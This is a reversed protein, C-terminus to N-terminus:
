ARVAAVNLAEGIAATRDAEATGQLPVTAQYISVDARAAPIFAVTAAMALLTQRWPWFVKGRAPKRAPGGSAVTNRHDIMNHLFDAGDALTYFVVAELWIRPAM